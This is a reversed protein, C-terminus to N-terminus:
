YPEMQADSLNQPKRESPPFCTVRGSSTLRMAPPSPCSVVEVQQAFLLTRGGGHPNGMFSLAYIRGNRGQALGGALATDIGRIDYRVRSPKHSSFADMVCQSANQPNDEISVTGCDVATSGSINKLKREMGDGYKRLIWDEMHEWTTSNLFVLVGVFTAMTGAMGIAIKKKLPM